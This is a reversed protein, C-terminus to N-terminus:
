GVGFFCVSVTIFVLGFFEIDNDYDRTALM